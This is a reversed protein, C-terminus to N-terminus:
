KKEKGATSSRAYKKKFAKWTESSVKMYPEPEGKLNYCQLGIPGDFGKDALYEVLSYVDLTGEGLPQIARDWDMNNTDGSDAGCISVAFLKPYILDIVKRINEESDTRLFHPLNFVAGFNERDVKQAIRYSDEPREAVFWQHPYVALKVGYPAAYDALEQLVPVIVSDATEDSAKYKTSHIHIWLIIGTDKLKPITERWEPLFPEPLLDLDMKVYDTYIKLGQKDLAEKLEMIGSSERYEIGDFGYKKLLLAQKDNPLSDIGQKNLGNNFIFFPNKLEKGKNGDTCSM